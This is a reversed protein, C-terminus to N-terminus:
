DRERGRAKHKGVIPSDSVTSILERYHPPQTRPMVLKYKLGGRVTCNIRTKAVVLQDNVRKRRWIGLIRHLWRGSLVGLTHKRDTQRHAM